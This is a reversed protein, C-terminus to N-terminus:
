AARRLVPFGCMKALLAAPAEDPLALSKPAVFFSHELAYRGRLVAHSCTDTMALWASGPPFTWVHKVSKEQFEENRKLCNHFRHMFSDYESRPRYGPRFLRPIDRFFEVAKAVQFGRAPLGAQEGYRKLLAGFPESTVWIRPESFNVNAFVRLIRWGNTPRTPFADVHLLDNRANVRLHRTAEELPRYSVRDPRWHAAYRPLQGALWATLSRSFDAFIQLLRDTQEQSRHVHGHLRHRVPDYSINKHVPGGQDQEALFNRDDGDPLPFPCASYFIVEGRELQEAPGAVSQTM